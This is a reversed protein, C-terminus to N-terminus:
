PPTLTMQIGKVPHGQADTFRISGKWDDRENVVKFVLVNLGANLTFDSVVDQDPVFPHPFPYKHVQKGNLYVKAQDDNGVKLVLGAQDGESQIFCVAYAVSWETLAGSLQNFDILYDELQVARWALENGGVKVREGARPRLQAEQLIQEQDLAAAGNRGEFAIPALVLWQKIAGPDQASLARARQAAQAAAQENKFWGAVELNWTQRSGTRGPAAQEDKLWGAVQHSSAAAWLKATGDDSGTVIRQGDPSFAVAGVWGSHGKLTLLEKGSAAEWVKATQDWSGTVIRRSDPSFTVDSIADSHGKLTLLEEGSSTEWVKATQDWSGTVIRRGDPSFAVSSIWYSHGKLTLLEKGSAAEWVKATQDASGTVIRQGDPSFAV